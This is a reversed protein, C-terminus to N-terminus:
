FIKREKLIQIAEEIKLNKKEGEFLFIPNKCTICEFSWGFGKNIPRPVYNTLPTKCKPCYPNFEKDWFAGLALKLEPKIFNKKKPKPFAKRYTFALLILVIILLWILLQWKYPITPFLKKYSDETTWQALIRLLLLLIASLLGLWWLAKRRKIDKM